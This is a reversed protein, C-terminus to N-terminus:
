KPVELPLSIALLQGNVDIADEMVLESWKQKLCCCFLPWYPFYVGSCFAIIPFPAASCPTTALKHMGSQKISTTVEYRVVARMEFSSAMAVSGNPTHNLGSGVVFKKGRIM